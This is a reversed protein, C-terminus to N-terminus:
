RGFRIVRWGVPVRRRSGTHCTRAAGGAMLRQHNPHRAAAPGGAASLVPGLWPDVSGAYGRRVLVEVAMPGHNSLQNEGWEPGTDELRAYAESLADEGM